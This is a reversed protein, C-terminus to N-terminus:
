PKPFRHVAPSAAPAWTGKDRNNGGSFALYSYNGYHPIKRGAANAAGPSLPLFVAVVRGPTGPHPLVAFLADGPSSYIKGTL